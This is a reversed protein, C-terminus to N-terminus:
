ALWTALVARRQWSQARWSCRESGVKREIHPQLGSGVRGGGEGGDLGLHRADDQREGAHNEVIHHEEREGRSADTTAAPRQSAAQHQSPAGSPATSACRRPLQCRAAMARRWRTEPPEPPAM